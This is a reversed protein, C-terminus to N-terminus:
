NELSTIDIHTSELYHLIPDSKYLFCVTFDSVELIPKDNKLLHFNWLVPKYGEYSPAMYEEFLATSDKTLKGILVFNEEAAISKIEIDELLELEIKGGMLPNEADYEGVPFTVMFRNCYSLVFQYLNRWERTSCINQIVIPQNM